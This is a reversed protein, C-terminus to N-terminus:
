PRTGKTLTAPSPTGAPPPFGNPKGKELRGVAHILNAFATFVENRSTVQQSRADALSSQVVLLDLLSNLGARYSEDALSYAATTSTLYADSFRSKRLATVLNYYDRWVEASAALEAQRLQARMMEAAEKAARTAAQTQMGDFLTWQVSLGVGYAFQRDSLSQNQSGYPHFDDGGVGGNLYLSPWLASSQVTVAAEKAALDARLSAIDPRQRIADNILRALDVKAPVGPLEEVPQRVALQTDGPLGAAQALNAQANSLNGEAEALRFNAQDFSAQAQLVDLATGLKADLKAKAAELVATADELTAKAAAVRGEAIIVGYYAVEIQLLVDQMSQNFSHNAAYVTQLAQEIAARRGGGFNILLYNLQLGAGTDAYNLDSGSPHANVVQRSPGGTATLTPLLYGYAQDVLARAQRANHWAQRTSPSNSLALDTLDALSQPQAPDAPLTAGARWAADAAPGTSRAAPPTWPTEPNAPPSPRVCGALLGLCFMGGIRWGSGM